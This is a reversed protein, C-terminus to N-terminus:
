YDDNIGRYELSYSIESSCCDPCRADGELDCLLQGGEVRVGCNGCVFVEDQLDHKLILRAIQM